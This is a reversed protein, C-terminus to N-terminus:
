HFLGLRKTEKQVNVKKSKDPTLFLIKIVKEDAHSRVFTLRRVESPIKHYSGNVDTNIEDTNITTDQQKFRNPTVDVGSESGGYGSIFLSAALVLSTLILRNCAKRRM